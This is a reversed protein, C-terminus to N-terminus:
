EEAYGQEGLVKGDLLADGSESMRLRGEIFWKAVLPYIQHEQVQIREILSDCDDDNFVPIKAQLIVPGGDLQETVFHISTGHEKDQAELVKQHTHLGPYKPLLSPHINIMKGRYHGVFDSSLIRMYGALIILDPQYTDMEAMLHADFEGRSAFAQPDIFHADIGAQKARELGYASEQNSFVAKISGTPLSVGCANVIAQLNSGNGSILVVINKM